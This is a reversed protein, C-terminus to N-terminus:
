EDDVFLQMLLAETSVLYAQLALLTGQSAHKGANLRSNLESCMTILASLESRVLKKDGPRSRLQYSIRAARTVPGDDKARASLGHATCWEIVAADPAALQLVRDIAEVGFNAIAVLAGPGPLHIQNWAGDLLEPIEPDLARLRNMLREYAGARAERWPRVIRDEVRQRAGSLRLRRNGTLVEAGFLGGIGQGANHAIEIQSASLSSGIELLYTNLARM